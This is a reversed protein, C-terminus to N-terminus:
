SRKEVVCYFVSATNSSFPLMNFVIDLFKIPFFIFLSVNVLFWYLKGSGFSLIGPIVYCLMVTFASMIGGRVGIELVSFNRFLHVLGQRSWRHYDSPSSHFPYLFPTSIYAVGGPKLVRLIEAVAKDAEPVHELVNDCVIRSVSGSELPLLTIDAVTDVEEYPTSDINVVGEGIRRPGSGLNVVLGSLKYKRLFQKPSLGTLWIPGFVTAVLYYFPPWRKFFERIFDNSQDSKKIKM